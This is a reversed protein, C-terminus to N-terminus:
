PRIILTDGRQSLELDSLFSMGLLVGEGPMDPVVSARVKHRVIPGLQVSDLEVLWTQVIGGATHSTSPIGKKLALKNAVSAPLAVYTAGTDVLFEVEVGNILGTALYHGQRNRQLSVETSGDASPVLVLNQNPNRRTDLLGSFYLTAMIGVTVWFLVFM